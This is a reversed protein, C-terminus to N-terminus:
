CPTNNKAASFTETIEKIFKDNGKNKRLTYITVGCEETFCKAMLTKGFGLDGYLLMGHSLKAELETYIEKDNIM